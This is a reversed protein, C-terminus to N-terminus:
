EDSSSVKLKLGTQNARFPHARKPKQRTALYLGAPLLGLSITALNLMELNASLLVGVPLAVGAVIAGWGVILAFMHASSQGEVRSPQTPM